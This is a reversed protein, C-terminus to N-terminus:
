RGNAVEGEHNFSHFLCPVAIGSRGFEIFVLTGPQDPADDSFPNGRESAILSERAPAHNSNGRGTGTSAVPRPERASLPVRPIM